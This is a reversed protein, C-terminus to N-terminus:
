RRFVIYGSARFSVSAFHHLPLLGDATHPDDADLSVAVAPENRLRLSGVSLERVVAATATHAGITGSLQTTGSASAIPVRTEPRAFLVLADVGSDPVMRVTPADRQTLEVLLQSGLTILKLTEGGAPPGADDDWTLTRHRYDLTYNHPALFDQGLIGVVGAGAAALANAPMTIALITESSMVGLRVDRLVAVLAVAHGAPTTVETKAVIRARIQGSVTESISSRSGGTDLLFRFPGAGGITVPVIVSGHEDLEFHVVSSPEGAARSATVLSMAAAFTLMVLQASRNSM